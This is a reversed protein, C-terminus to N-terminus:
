KSIRFKEQGEPLISAPEDSSESEVSLFPTM